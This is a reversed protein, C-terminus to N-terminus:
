KLVCLGGKTEELMVMYTGQPTRVRYIKMDYMMDYHVREISYSSAEIEKTEDVKIPTPIPTSACGENITLNMVTLDSLSNFLDTKIPPIKMAIM